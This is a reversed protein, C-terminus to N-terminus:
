GPPSSFGVSGLKVVEPKTGFCCGDRGVSTVCTTSLSKSTMSKQSKPLCGLAEASQPRVVVGVRQLLVWRAAVAFKVALRRAAEPAVFVMRRHTRRAAARDPRHATQKPKRSRKPKTM